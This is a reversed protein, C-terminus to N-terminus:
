KDKIQDTYITVEGKIIMLPVRREQIWAYDDRYDVFEDNSIIPANFKDATKLIFFDADTDSPVQRVKQDDILSELQTQDDIEYQLNADIFIIPEYGMSNLKKQVALINSVKPDGQQSKELYAVNSGDVIIINRDM